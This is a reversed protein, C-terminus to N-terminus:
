RRRMCRVRGDRSRRCIESSVPPPYKSSFFLASSPEVNVRTACSSRLWYEKAERGRHEVVLQVLEIHSRLGAVCDARALTIQRRGVAAGRRLLFLLAPRAGPGVTCWSPLVRVAFAAEM